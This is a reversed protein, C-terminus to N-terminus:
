ELGETAKRLNDAISKFAKVAEYLTMDQEHTLERCKIKRVSEIASAVSGHYSITKYIPTDPNDKEKRGTDKLLTYDRIGGDIYFDDIIYIM